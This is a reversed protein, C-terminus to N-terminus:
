ATVSRAHLHRLLVQRLEDQRFPKALHDDMGVATCRQRDAPMANATLAIVPVNPSGTDNEHARLRRTAEIGDLVPMQCDMLVVDFGHAGPMLLDLAQQGDQALTVRLGLRELASQAVLANVANDEVLLVHGQLAGEDSPARAEVPEGPRPLHDLLGTPGLAELDLGSEAATSDPLCTTPAGALAPLVPSAHDDTDAGAEHAEPLPVTLTFVSGRGPTSECVIDGGMARALERSITLGLGTGQHRRGFSGDLQAFAEFVREIQDPPIGTGTDEVDFRIRRACPSDAGADDDDCGRRAVRLTVQGTDTFKIANGLLNYLVQRVRAPDGTVFCPRPLQIVERLALQKGAATVRSLALVEDLVTQLDFRRREVQLRGAEIRSFDLVDNILALLHEGSREIMHAHQRTEGLVGVRAPLRQQILQSLGLIGHLPTRMEHSMTALFQDKIASHRQALKLADAREQSIRDTTFRLWLLESIRREARRSENVMIGCLTALGIAGFVGYGDGRTLLMGAAPLLMPVNMALSSGMHAQLTFTYIASGGVLTAIIVATTVLDDVPMLWVGALGWSGGHIACVFMLSRLWHPADRDEAREFAWWHGLRLACGLLVIVAWALSPFWGVAPGILAALALAFGGSVLTMPLTPAFLMRVREAGILRTLEPDDPATRSPVFAPPSTM